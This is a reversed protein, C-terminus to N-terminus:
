PSAGARISISATSRGRSAAQSDATRGFVAVVDARLGGLAQQQEVAGVEVRRRGIVRGLRGSPRPPRRRGDLGLGIPDAADSSASLVPDTDIASGAADVLSVGFTAGGPVGAVAPRRGSGTAGPRRRLVDQRRAPAHRRDRGLLPIGPRGAAAHPRQCRGRARRDVALLRPQRLRGPGISRRARRARRRARRTVDPDRDHGGRARAITEAQAALQSDVRSGVIFTTAVVSLVVAAAVAAVWGLVPRPAAVTSQCPRRHRGPRPARSRADPRRGSGGRCPFRGCSARRCPGRRADARAPRGAADGARRGAHAAGVRQLRGLEETCAPCGALHGAVAQATPTDGAMLRDLGGPEVAALELQERAADHDMTDKDIRAPRAGADVDLEPAPGSSRESSRACASSRGGRGPRSPASRGASGSPSRPRRCTRRTPWCSSRGNSRPCRRWPRRPDGRARRRRRVGGRPGAPPEGPSSPDWRSVCGSSRRPRPGRGVGAASSLAVLSPRRGAARLRDIARNRAITHLWAALSGVTPDFTEARNWLALFTEQVVEEATGRDSTLRYAAAFIASRMDTM